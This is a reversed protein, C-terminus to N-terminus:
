RHMVRYGRDGLGRPKTTAGLVIHVVLVTFRAYLVFRIPLSKYPRLVAAGWSARAFVFWDRLRIAALFFSLV